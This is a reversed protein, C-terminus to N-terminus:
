RITIEIDNGRRGFVGSTKSPMSRPARYTTFTRSSTPDGITSRRLTAPASVYGPLFTPSLNLVSGINDFSAVSLDGPLEILDRVANAYQVRSL